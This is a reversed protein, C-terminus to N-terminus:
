GSSPSCRGPRATSRAKVFQRDILFAVIAGLILGALVAGDGLLM